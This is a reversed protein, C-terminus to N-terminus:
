NLLKITFKGSKVNIAELIEVREELTEKENRLQKLEQQMAQMENRSSRQSVQLENVQQMLAYLVGDKAGDL